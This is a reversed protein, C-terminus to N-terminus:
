ARAVYFIRGFGLDSTVGADAAAIAEVNKFGSELLATVIEAQPYCRQEVVSEKRTWVGPEEKKEFWILETLATKTATDYTGRVLGVSNEGVTGIWQRLDIFYAQEGNMDFVFLGGTVLHQRVRVFVKRLDEATLIHNLSDFTSIVADYGPELRLERADQVLFETGPLAQRAKEILAPSLDVGTVAYGRAVLEKTVHGSGCCLDLVRSGHSVKSFFLQELAPLAAPLYWDAWFADYMGAINDYSSLFNLCKAFRM